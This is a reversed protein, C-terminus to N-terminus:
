RDGGEKMGQRMLGDLHRDHQPLFVDGRALKDLARFMLDEPVPLCPIGLSNAAAIDGAMGESVGFPRAVLLLECRALDLRGLRLGTNREEPTGDSLFRTLYLHPAKPDLGALALERCLLIALAENRAVNGSFPSCVFVPAGPFERILDRLQLGKGPETEAILRGAKRISDQHSTM